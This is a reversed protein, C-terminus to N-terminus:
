VEVVGPALVVFVVRACVGFRLFCM